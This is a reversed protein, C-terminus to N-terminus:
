NGETTLAIAKDLVDCMNELDRQKDNDDSDGNKVDNARAILDNLLTDLSRTSPAWSKLDYTWTDHDEHYATVTAGVISYTSMEYTTADAEEVDYISQRTRDILESPLDFRCNSAFDFAQELTPINGAEVACVMGKGPVIVGLQVGFRTDNLETIHLM